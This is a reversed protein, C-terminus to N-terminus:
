VNLAHLRALSANKPWNIEMNVPLVLIPVGNPEMFSFVELHVTTVSFKQHGTVHIVSAQVHYVCNLQQTSTIAM